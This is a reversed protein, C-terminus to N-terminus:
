PYKTGYAQIIEIRETSNSIIAASLCSTQYCGTDLNIIKKSQYDIVSPLPHTLFPNDKQAFIAAHGHFVLTMPKIKEIYHSNTSWHKGQNPNNIDFSIQKGDEWVDRIYLVQTYKDREKGKMDLLERVTPFFRDPHYFGAHSFMLNYGFANTTYVLKTNDILWEYDDDVLLPHQRKRLHKWEHNGLLFICDHTKQWEQLRRIVKIEEPGKDLYDGLFIYQTTNKEELQKLLLNLEELCGHIDGIAAIRHM